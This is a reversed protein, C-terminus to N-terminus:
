RHALRPRLPMRPLKSAGADSSPASSPRPSAHGCGPSAKVCMQPHHSRTTPSPAIRRRAPLCGYKMTQPAGSYAAAGSLAPRRVSTHSATVIMRCESTPSTFTGRAGAVATESGTMAARACCVRWAQMSRSKHRPHPPPRSLTAAQLSRCSSSSNHSSSHNHHNHQESRSGHVHGHRPPAISRPPSGGVRVTTSPCSASSTASTAIRARSSPWSITM